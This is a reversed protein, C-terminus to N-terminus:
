THVQGCVVDIDNYPSVYIKGQLEAQRRAEREALAPDDSFFVLRINADNKGIM